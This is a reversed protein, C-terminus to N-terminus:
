INRLFTLSGEEFQYLRDRSALYRRLSRIANELLEVNGLELHIILSLIRAFSYVDQQIDKQDENVVRNIWDLSEAYGGFSFYFVSLNYRYDSKRPADLASDTNSLREKITEVVEKRQKFYGNAIFFSLQPNDARSNVRLELRRREGSSLFKGLSNYVEGFVPCNSFLRILRLSEIM